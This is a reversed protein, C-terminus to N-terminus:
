MGEPIGMRSCHNGCAFKRLIEGGRNHTKKGQHKEAKEKRAEQDDAGKKAEERCRVAERLQKSHWLLHETFKSVNMVSGGHHDNWLRQTYM